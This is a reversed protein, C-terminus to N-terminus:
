LNDTKGCIIFKPYLDLGLKIACEISSSSLFCHNKEISNEDVKNAAMCETCCSIKWPSIRKCVRALRGGINVFQGPKYKKM